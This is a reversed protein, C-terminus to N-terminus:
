FWAEDVTSASLLPFFKKIILSPTFHAGCDLFFNTEAFTWRAYAPAGESSSILAVPHM